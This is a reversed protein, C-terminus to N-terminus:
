QPIKKMQITLTEKVGPPVDVFRIYDRYGGKRAEVKHRGALVGEEYTNDAQPELKHGDIYVAAEPPEVEIVIWGSGPAGKTDYYPDSSPPYYGPPYYGPPHRRPYYQISQLAGGAAASVIRQGSPDAVAAGPLSFLFIFGIALLSLGLKHRASIM